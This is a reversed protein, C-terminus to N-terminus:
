TIRQLFNNAIAGNCGRLRSLLRDKEIANRFQMSHVENEVQRRRSTLELMKPSQSAVGSHKARDDQLQLFEQLLEMIEQANNEVFDLDSRASPACKPDLYVELMEELHLNRSLTKSYIKKFIGLDGSRWPYGLFFDTMNPMMIPKCLLNAVDWPGSNHGIYFECNAVLAIDTEDSKHESLAYDIVASFKPLPTMTKDGLRVVWYGRDTLYKMADFYNNITANRIQKGPGEKWGYYGGERVHLCVFPTGEPLGMDNLVRDANNSLYQEPVLPVCQDFEKRWCTRNACFGGPTKYRSSWLLRRGFTPIAPLVPSYQGATRALVKNIAILSAFGVTLLIEGLFNIPKPLDIRNVFSLNTLARNIGLGAKSFFIRKTDRPFLLIVRRGERQGRLLAFFMEEACNGIAEVTPTVLIPLRLRKM